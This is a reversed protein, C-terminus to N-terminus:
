LASTEDFFGVHKTSDHPLFLPPLQFNRAHPCVGGPFQRLRWNRCNIWANLAPGSKFTLLDFQLANWGCQFATSADLIRRTKTFDHLQPTPPAPQHGGSILQNLGPRGQPCVEGTFSSLMCNKCDTGCLCYLGSRSTLVEIQLASLAHEFAGTTTETM